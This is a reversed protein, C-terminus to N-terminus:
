SDIRLIRVIVEDVPSDKVMARVKVRDWTLGKFCYEGGLIGTQIGLPRTRSYIQHTLNSTIEEIEDYKFEEAQYINEDPVQLM